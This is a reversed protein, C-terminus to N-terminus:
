GIGQLLGFADRVAPSSIMTHAQQYFSDLTELPTPDVELRAVNVEDINSHQVSRSRIRRRNGADHQSPPEKQLRLLFRNVAVTLAFWHTLM